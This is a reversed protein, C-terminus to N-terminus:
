LIRLYVAARVKSDKTLAIDATLMMIGKTGNGTTKWQYRGGSGKAAEWEFNMQPFAWGTLV